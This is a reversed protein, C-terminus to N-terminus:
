AWILEEALEPEARMWTGGSHASPYGEYDHFLMEINTYAVDVDRLIGIMRLYQPEKYPSLKRSIIADGTLAFTIESAIYSERFDAENQAHSEQSFFVLIFGVLLTIKKM